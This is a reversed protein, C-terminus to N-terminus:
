CGLLTNAIRRIKWFYSTKKSNNVLFLLSELSRVFVRQLMMVDECLICILRWWAMRRNMKTNTDFPIRLFAVFDDEIKGNKQEDREKCNYSIENTKWM